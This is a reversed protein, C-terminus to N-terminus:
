EEHLTFRPRRLPPPAAQHRAAAPRLDPPPLPPAQEARVMTEAMQLLQSRHEPSLRAYLESITLEDPSVARDFAAAFALAPPIHLVACLRAATDLRPYQAKGSRLNKLASSNVGARACAEHESLELRQRAAEFLAAVANM